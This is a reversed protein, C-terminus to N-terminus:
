PKSLGSLTLRYLSVSRPSPRSGLNAAEVFGLSECLIPDYQVWLGIQHKKVFDVGDCLGLHCGGAKKELSKIRAVDGSSCTDTSRRHIVVTPAARACSRILGTWPWEGEISCM